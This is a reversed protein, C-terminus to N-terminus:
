TEGREMQKLYAEIPAWIKKDLKAILEANEAKLRDVESKLSISTETEAKLQRSLADEIPRSNWTSIAEEKRIFGGPGAGCKKCQVFWLPQPTPDHIVWGGAHCFPCCKLDADSM